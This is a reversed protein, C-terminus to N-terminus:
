KKLLALIGGIVGLILGILWGGGTIISLVSFVLVIVGGAVQKGPKYMLYAGFLVIIAFVIAIVGVVELRIGSFVRQRLEDSGLFTIIIEGRFIRVIGQILIVVAAVFSIVFGLTTRETPAPKTPQASPQTPQQM